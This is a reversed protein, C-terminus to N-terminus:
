VVLERPLYSCFTDLHSGTHNHMFTFSAAGQYRKPDFEGPKTVRDHGDNEQIIQLGVRSLTISVAYMMTSNKALPMPVKGQKVLSAAKVIVEPTIFNLM